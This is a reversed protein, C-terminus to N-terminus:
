KSSRQIVVSVEAVDEAMPPAEKTIEVRVVRVGAFALVGEAVQHALHELLRSEAGAVLKAVSGAVAAYDVTDGLEDSLGARALDTEIELDIIVERAESREEETVGIRTKVRLGRM